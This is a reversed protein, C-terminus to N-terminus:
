KQRTANKQSQENRADRKAMQMKFNKCISSSGFSIYATVGDM